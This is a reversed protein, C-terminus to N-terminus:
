PIFAARNHKLEPSKLNTERACSILIWIFHTFQAVFTQFALYTQIWIAYDAAMTTRRWTDELKKRTKKKNKTKKDLFNISFHLKIQPRCTKTHSITSCYNALHIESITLAPDFPICLTKNQKTKNPSFHCDSLIIEVALQEM